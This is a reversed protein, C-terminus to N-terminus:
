HGGRLRSRKEKIKIIILLLIKVIPYIIIMFLSSIMVYWNRDVFRDPLIYLIYNVTVSIFGFVMIYLALPAQITIVFIAAVIVILTYHLFSVAIANKIRETPSM